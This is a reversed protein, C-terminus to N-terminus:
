QRTGQIPSLAMPGRTAQKYAAQKRLLSWTIYIIFGAVVVIVIVLNYM